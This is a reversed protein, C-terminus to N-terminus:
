VDAIVLSPVFHVGKIYWRDTLDTKNKIEKISDEEAVNNLENILGLVYDGQKGILSLLPFCYDEDGYIERDVPIVKYTLLKISQNLDYMCNQLKLTMDSLEKNTM